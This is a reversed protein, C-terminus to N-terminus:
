PLWRAVRRRLSGARSKLRGASFRVYDSIHSSSRAPQLGFEEIGLAIGVLNAVPGTFGWSEADERQWLGVLRKVACMNFVGSRALTPSRLIALIRESLDRRCWAGFRYASKRLIPDPEAMGSPSIGTNADPLKFLFEDLEELLRYYVAGVRADPAYSWMAAVTEPATFAQELRAFQRVYDMAQGIMRRMYNEQQDLEVIAAPHDDSCGKWATARDMEAQRVCVEAISPTILDLNDRIPEIRLSSLHHGSFLGRGISNGWSAAIVVDDSNVLDGLRPMGHLHLGSIEAGGWSVMRTMNGWLLDADYPIEHLPWGLYDTIRRAYTVDRSLREGWTVAHIEQDIHGAKQFSALIGAVIRSDLGGSLLIWIRSAPNVYAVLEEELCERLQRAISRPKEVKSGHHIPGYRTLTADGRLETRWLLKGVGQVLTRSGLLHGFNLLELCGVPDLVREEEPVVTIMEQFSDAVYVRNDIPPIWYYPCFKGFVPTRYTQQSGLETIM